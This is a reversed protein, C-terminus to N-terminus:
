KHRRVVERLVGLAIRGGVSRDEHGHDHIPRRDADCGRRFRYEITRVHREMNVLSRNMCDVLERLHRTAGRSRTRACGRDIDEILESVDHVLEGLDEIDARLYRLDRLERIDHALHDIDKAKSRIKSADSISRSDNFTDEVFNIM